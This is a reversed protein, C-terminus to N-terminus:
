FFDKVSIKKNEEEAKELLQYFEELENNLFASSHISQLLQAYQDQDDEDMGGQPHRARQSAQYRAYHEANFELPRERIQM